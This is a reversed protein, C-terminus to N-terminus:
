LFPDIEPAPFEFNEGGELKRLNSGGRDRDGSFPIKPLSFIIKLVFFM